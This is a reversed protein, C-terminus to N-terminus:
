QEARLLILVYKLTLAWVILSLVGLVTDRTVPQNHSVAIV